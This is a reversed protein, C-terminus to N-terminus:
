QTLLRTVIPEQQWPQIPVLLPPQVSYRYRTVKKVQKLALAEIVNKRTTNFTVAGFDVEARNMIVGEQELGPVIPDDCSPAIDKKITIDCIAM